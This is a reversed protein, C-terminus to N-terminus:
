AGREETKAALARLVSEVEEHLRDGGCNRPGHRKGIRWCPCAHTHIADMRSVRPNKLLANLPELAERVRAAAYRDLAPSMVEACVAEMLARNNAPVEDWPKASAARTEYGHAPALREYAEHFARALQEASPERESTM